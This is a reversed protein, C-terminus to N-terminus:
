PILTFIQQYPKGDTLVQRTFSILHGDPSCVPNEPPTATPLTLTRSVGFGPSTRRVDCLTIANGCVYLLEDGDPMWRLSSQISTKEHSLQVRNGGSPSATFAQVIGADDKALIVARQSSGVAGASAPLEHNIADWTLQREPLSDQTAAVHQTKSGRGFNGDLPPASDAMTLDRFRAVRHFTLYNANHYNPAGWATRAVAILDDGDFQWDPYQFAVRDLRFIPLGERWRLVICRQTWNRLDPSSTLMVVNRQWEPSYDAGPGTNPNTIVNTLSWYLRSREDYRITFKSQSGPFRIFGHAPDFSATAGDSSLQVMAAVEFRPIGASPGSLAFPDHLGQQANIRLVTVMGGDPAPVVNGELWGTRAGQVWDGSFKIGNTRRWNGAELLDSGDPASVASTEFNRGSWAGDAGIYHEFARWIRGGHVVVPTPACHFTGHFLRGTHPDSPTTWTRGDDLSRRILIDGYERETGLLYLAGRYVFLSSWFQGSLEARFTWTLGRDASGFVRTHAQRSSKTGFFDHSAAYTGDPLIVISPSGVFSTTPSPSVDVAVGPPPPNSKLDAAFAASFGLSGLLLFFLRTKM